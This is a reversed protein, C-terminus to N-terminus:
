QRSSPLGTNWIAWWGDPREGLPAMGVIDLRPKTCGVLDEPIRPQTANWAPVPGVRQPPHARM